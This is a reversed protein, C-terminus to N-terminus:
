AARRSPRRRSSSRGASFLLTVRVSSTDPALCSRVTCRERGQNGPCSPLAVDHGRSRLGAALEAIAEPVLRYYAWTGRRESTVLGADRLLRLHHSITPQSLGADPVLHCVCVEDAAALQNVIALRTPDGLAKFREALERTAEISVPPGGPACCDPIAVIELNVNM